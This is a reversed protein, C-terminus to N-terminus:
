HDATRQFPLAKQLAVKDARRQAGQTRIHKGVAGSASRRALAAAVPNRPPGSAELRIALPQKMRLLKKIDGQAFARSPKQASMHNRSFLFGRGFALTSPHSVACLSACWWRPQVQTNVRDLRPPPGHDFPPSSCRLCLTSRPDNPAPAPRTEPSPRIRFLLKATPLRCRAQHRPLPVRHAASRRQAGATWAGGGM